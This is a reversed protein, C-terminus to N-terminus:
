ESKDNQVINAYLGGSKSILERHFGKEAVVGDRLVVNVDRDKDIVALRHTIIITTRENSQDRISKLVKQESENDLASTAEDLLLIQPKRVLARAIAVRQKMGGSLQSGRYGVDTEFQHPLTMIFDYAHAAKAAEIIEEMTASPKACQINSHVTGQMLAPEQSVIGIQGRLWPVNISEIATNNFLVEGAICDYFRQLLAFITSKGSGSPALIVYTKHSEIALTLGNLVTAKPNTPYAFVVNRFEILHQAPQSLNLTKGENANLTNDYNTRSSNLVSLFRSAAGIGRFFEMLRTSIGGVAHVVIMLYLVFSVLQGAQLTGDFLFVAGFCVVLLVGGYTLLEAAFQIVSSMRALQYSQNYVNDM